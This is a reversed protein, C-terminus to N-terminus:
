ILVSWFVLRAPCKVEEFCRMFSLIMRYKIEVFEKNEILTKFQNYTLYSHLHATGKNFELVSDSVDVPLGIRECDIFFDSDLQFKNSLNWEISNKYEIFGYCRM